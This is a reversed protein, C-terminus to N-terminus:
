SEEWFDLLASMPAYNLQLQIKNKLYEKGRFALAFGASAMMQYDNAGDGIVLANYLNINNELCYNELAQKKGEADILPPLYKGTLKKNNIEFNNCYIKNFGLEEQLSKAFATFGGSILVTFIGKKQIQQIAKKSGLTLPLPNKLFDNIKTAPLNKLLGLRLNISESFSMQGNMAANTLSEFKDAITPVSKALEDLTEIAVVTSDMDFAVVKIDNKKWFHPLFNIDFFDDQWTKIKEFDILSFCEDHINFYFGESCDIFLNKTKESTKLISKTLINKLNNVKRELIRASVISKNYHVFGLM